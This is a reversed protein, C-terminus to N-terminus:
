PLRIEEITSGYFAGQDNATQFTAVMSDDPFEVGKLKGAIRADSATAGFPGASDFVGKNVTRIDVNQGNVLVTKPVTLYLDAVTEAAGSDTVLGAARLGTFLEGLNFGTLAGSANVVVMDSTLLFYEHGRGVDYTSAALSSSSNGNPHAWTVSKTTAGSSPQTVDHYLGTDYAYDWTDDAATWDIAFATGADTGANKSDGATNTANSIYRGKQWAADANSPTTNLAPDGAAYAIGDPSAWGYGFFVGLVLSLALLWAM